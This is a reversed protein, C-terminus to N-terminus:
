QCPEECSWPHSFYLIKKIGGEVLAGGRNTKGKVPKRWGLRSIINGNSVGEQMEKSKKKTTSTRKEPNDRKKHWNLNTFFNRILNHNREEGKTGPNERLSKRM